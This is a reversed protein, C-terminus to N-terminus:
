RDCPTAFNCIQTAASGTGGHSPAVTRSIGKLMLVRAVVEGVGIHTTFAFPTAEGFNLSVEAVAERVVM